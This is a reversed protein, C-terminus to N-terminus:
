PGLHHVELPSEGLGDGLEDGCVLVCCVPRPIRGVPPEGMSTKSATRVTRATRSYVSLGTGGSTTRRMASAACRVALLRLAWGHCKTTTCFLSVSSLSPLATAVPGKM